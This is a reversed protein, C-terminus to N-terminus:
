FRTEIGAMWRRGPAPYGLAEEYDRATVNDLRLYPTVHKLEYRGYLDYRLYSANETREFPPVPAIDDRRGTFTARATIVLATVPRFTAALYASHRPRRLLPRGNDLDETWLWSYGGDLGIERHIKQTFGIEVGRTRAHGVNENRFAPFNLVILDRLDNWFATAGLQGRRFYRDAGIEFSGSREPRLAPNGSYPYYLEGASPARFARGAAARTKWRSKPSLWSAAVRPSWAGGFTSYGDYRLGVSLSWARAPRLIEQIGAAVASTLQGDLGTGFTSRDSVEWRDASLFAVLTQRPTRWTESARCQWTQAESSSAFETSPDEFRPKSVTRAVSVTVEHDRAPEITIPLSVLEERYRGRALPTGAGVPGPVGADGDLVAARIGASVRSGLSARVQASGNRERWDSNPRGADRVLAVYSGAFSVPGVGATFRASGGRADYGGAEIAIEGAPANTANRTFIQVVGGIAESGYLASYPGRVVEIREVNDTTLGSFDFGGFYPSNARIGDVLVLTQNSNTGRVFVSTVAGDGGARVVDLGPVLRLMDSVTVAGAEEIQRRTIVTTASGIASEEEPTLTATVVIRESLTSVDEAALVRIMGAPVAVTALISLIAALSGANM